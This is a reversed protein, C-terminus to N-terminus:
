KACHCIEPQVKIYVALHGALKTVPLEEIDAAHVFVYLFDVLDALQWLVMALQFAASLPKRCLNLAESVESIFM